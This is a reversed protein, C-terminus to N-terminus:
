KEQGLIIKKKICHDFLSTVKKKAKKTKRIAVVFTPFFTMEKWCNERDLM